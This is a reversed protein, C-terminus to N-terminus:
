LILVAGMSKLPKKGLVGELSDFILM